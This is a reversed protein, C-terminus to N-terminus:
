HGSLKPHRAGPQVVRWNEGDWWQRRDDSLPAGPPLDHAVEVWAAGDWWSARDKSWKLQDPAILAPPPPPGQSQAAQPALRIVVVQDKQMAYFVLYVLLPIVCLFFGLVIMAISFEKKKVLVAENPMRSTIMFGRSVYSTIAADMEPSSSVVITQPVATVGLDDDLVFTALGDPKAEAYRRSRRRHRLM